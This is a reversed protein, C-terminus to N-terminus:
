QRFLEKIETSITLFECAFIPEKLIQKMPRNMSEM